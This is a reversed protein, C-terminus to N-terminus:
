AGGPNDPGFVVTAIAGWAAGIGVLAGHILADYDQSPTKLIVLHGRLYPARAVVESDPKEDARTPRADDIEELPVFIWIGDVRMTPLTARVSQVPGDRFWFSGTADGLLFFSGEVSLSASISGFLLRFRTSTSDTDIKLVIRTADEADELVYAQGHARGGM